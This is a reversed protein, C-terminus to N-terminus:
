PAQRNQQEKQIQERMQQRMSEPFWNIMKEQAEAESLGASSGRELGSM